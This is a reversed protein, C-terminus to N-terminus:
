FVFYCMDSFPINLSSRLHIEEGKMNLLGCKPQLCCTILLQSALGTPFSAGSTSLAQPIAPAITCGRFSQVCLPHRRPFWWAQTPQDRPERSPDESLRQWARGSAWCGASRRFHNKEGAWAVPVQISQQGGVTRKLHFTPQALHSM